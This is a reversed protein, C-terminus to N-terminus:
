IAHMISNDLPHIKLALPRRRRCPHLGISLYCLDYVITDWPRLTNTLESNPWNFCNWTSQLAYNFWPLDKPTHVAYLTNHTSSVYYFQRPCTSTTDRYGHPNVLWDLGLWAMWLLLGVISIAIRGTDQRVTRHCAFQKHICMHLDFLRLLLITAYWESARFAALEFFIIHLHSPAPLSRVFSLPTHM